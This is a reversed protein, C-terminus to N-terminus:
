PQQPTAVSRMVRGSAVDIQKVTRDWGASLATLGDPCMCVSAVRQTHVALAPEDDSRLDWVQIKGNSEGGSVLGLDDPLFDVSAAGQPHALTLVDKGSSLDWCKVMEDSSASAALRGDKWVG